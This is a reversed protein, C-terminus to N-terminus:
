ERQGVESIVASPVLREEMRGISGPSSVLDKEMIEELQRGTMDSRVPEDLANRGIRELLDRLKPGM